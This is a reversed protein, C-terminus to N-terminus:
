KYDEGKSQPNFLITLSNFQLIFKILFFVKIKSITMIQIYVMFRSFVAAFCIQMIKHLKFSILFQSWTPPFNFTKRVSLVRIQFYSQSLGVLNYINEMREVSVKILCWFSSSLEIFFGTVNSNSNTTALVCLYFRKTVCDGELNAKIKEKLKKRCFNHQNNPRMNRIFLIDYVDGGCNSHLLQTALLQYFRKTGRVDSIDFKM